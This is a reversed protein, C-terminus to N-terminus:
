REHKCSMVGMCRSLEACSAKLCFCINCFFYKCQWKMFHKFLLSLRSEKRKSTPSKLCLAIPQVSTFKYLFAALPYFTNKFNEFCIPACHSVPLSVLLTLSPPFSISHLLSPAPPIAPRSSGKDHARLQLTAVLCLVELPNFFSTLVIMDPKQGGAGSRCNSARAAEGHQKLRHSRLINSTLIM